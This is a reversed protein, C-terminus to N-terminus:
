VGNSKALLGSTAQYSCIQYRPPSLSWYTTQQPTSPYHSPLSYRLFLLFGPHGWYLGHQTLRPNWQWLSPHSELMSLPRPSPARLSLSWSLIITVSPIPGLLPWLALATPSCDESLLLSLEGESVVLDPGTHCVPDSCAWITGKQSSSCAMEEWHIFLACRPAHSWLNPAPQIEVRLWGRQWMGQGLVCMVCRCVTALTWSHAPNQLSWILAVHM